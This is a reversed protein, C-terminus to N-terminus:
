SHLLCTSKLWKLSWTNSLFCRELLYWITTSIRQTKPNYSCSWVSTHTNEQTKNQCDNHGTSAHSVSLCSQFADHMGLKFLTNLSTGDLILETPIRGHKSHGIAIIKVNMIGNQPNKGQLKMLDPLTLWSWQHNTPGTYFPPHCTFFWKSQGPRCIHWDQLTSTTDPQKDMEPTCQGPSASSTGLIALRWHRPKLWGVRWPLILAPKQSYYALRYTGWHFM